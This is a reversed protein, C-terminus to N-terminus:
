KVDFKTMYSNVLSGDDQKVIEVISAGKIPNRDADFSINGTEYLSSLTSMADKVASPEFGGAKTIADNLLYMADYGLAAYYSPNRVYRNYFSKRMEVNRIDTTVTSYSITYFCNLAEDGANEVLSEWRDGGLLPVSIGQSRLLKVQKAVDGADNPLYILDPNAAKIKAIQVGFDAQGTKYSEDAVVSGGLETFKSRFGSALGSNYEAESNCLIAARRSELSEYAFAAGVVGQRFDTFIVRFIYDGTKTIEGGSITPCILVIQNQQAQRAVAMAAELKDPGIIYKAGDEGTLKNFLEVAKAESGEDDESLFVIRKGLIGGKQNFRQFAYLAGDRAETGEFADPGSLTFISGIVLDNTNKGKDSKNCSLFVFAIFCSLLLFTAKKMIDEQM